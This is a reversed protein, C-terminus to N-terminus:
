SSPKYEAFLIDKSRALSTIHRFGAAGILQDKMRPGLQGNLYTLRNEAGRGASGIISLNNFPM